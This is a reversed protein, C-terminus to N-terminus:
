LSVIEIHCREVFAARGRKVSQVLDRHSKYGKDHAHKERRQLYGLPVAGKANYLVSLKSRDAAAARATKEATKADISHGSIITDSPTVVMWAATVARKGTYQHQHGNSFTTLKKTM